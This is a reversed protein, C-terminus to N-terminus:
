ELEFYKVIPYIGEGDYQLKEKLSGDMYNWGMFGDRVEPELAYFILNALPQAMDIIYDGSEVVVNEIDRFEGDLTTMQYNAFGMSRYYLSDYYFAEGKKIMVPKDLQDVKVGHMRLKAAIFGMDKPIIYGRPVRAERAAVAKTILEVNEVLVPPEDYTRMFISTGPLQEIKRERYAWVPFKGESVYKGEVANRLKGTHARKKIMEVVEEDAKQCIEMMQQGNKYCYELLALTYIYHVYIGKEYTEEGPNEVIICMRNRLSYGSAMFKAETSWYAADHDFTKPPWERDLGAHFGVEINGIERALAIIEPFMTYNVYDRPGPHASAVNGSAQGIAYGHQTRGMRHMDFLLVPDWRLYINEVAGQMNRTELKIADRNVDLDIANHRTGETRPYLKRTNVQRAENGDVNYNPAILIILEDLLYNKDGFLIDRIVMLLAEKGQPEAPHIGGQLYLVPKGSDRAERPSRIGEKSLVIVPCTRGYDSTFMSFFYVQESKERLLSFYNLIDENKATYTFDSKEADTLLEEPWEGNWNEPLQNGWLFGPDQQALTLERLVLVLFIFLTRM